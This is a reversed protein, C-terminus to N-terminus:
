RIKEDHDAMGPVNLDEDFVSLVKGCFPAFLAPSVQIEIKIKKAVKASRRPLM